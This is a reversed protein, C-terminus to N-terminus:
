GGAPDFPGSADGWWNLEANILPGGSFIGFDPSNAAINNFHAVNGTGATLHIGSPGGGTNNLIDNGLIFTDSANQVNIGETNNQIINGVLSANNGNDLLIGNTWNDITNTNIFVGGFDHTANAHKWEYVNVYIGTGSGIGNLTNGQVLARGVTQSSSHNADMNYSLRIGDANLNGVTNDIINLDKVTVTTSDGSYILEYDINIGNDAGDITNGSVEFDGVDLSGAANLSSNTENFYIYVADNDLNNFRNNTISVGEINSSSHNDSDEWIRDYFLYVGYDCGFTNDNILFGGMTTEANNQNDYLSRHTYFNVGDGDVDFTNGQIDYRPLENYTDDSHHSGVEFGEYYIQIGDDVATGTNSWIFADGMVFNSNGGNSNAVDEYFFLFCDSGSNITNNELHVEGLEASTDDHMEYGVDDYYLAVSSSGSDIFNDQIFIDGIRVSSADYQYKAVELAVGVGYGGAVITGSDVYLDGVTVQSDNYLDWQDGYGVAIGLKGVNVNNRQIYTDGITANSTNYLDHAYGINYVDIGWESGLATVTNDTIIVDGVTATTTGDWNECNYPDVCICCSWSQNMLTNNIIRIAGTDVVADEMDQIDGEFIIAHEGNYFRNNEITVTGVSAVAGNIGEVDLDQIYIGEQSGTPVTGPQCTYVNDRFVISGIDINSSTDSQNIEIDILVGDESVFFRNNEIQM